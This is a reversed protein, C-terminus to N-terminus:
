AMLKVNRMGFLHSSHKKLETSVSIPGHAGSRSINYWMFLSKYIMLIALYKTLIENINMALLFNSVNRGSKKNFDVIISLTINREIQNEKHLYKLWYFGVYFNM